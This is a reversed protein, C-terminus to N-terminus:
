APAPQASGSESGAAAVAEGFAALLRAKRHRLPPYGRRRETLWELLRVRWEGDADLHADMAAESGFVGERDGHDRAVM